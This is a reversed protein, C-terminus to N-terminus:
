LEKKNEWYFSEYEYQKADNIVQKVPLDNMGLKFGDIQDLVYKKNIFERNFSAYKTQSHKRFNKDVVESIHNVAGEINYNPFVHNYKKEYRFQMDGDEEGIALLREDFWGIDAIQKRNLMVHSWTKNITFSKYGNVKNIYSLNEFFLKTLSVDDNLILCQDNSSFILINNWLKSLSRFETCIHPYVNNFKACYNLIERRYVNNFSNNLNGNVFVIIEINPFISKISKLLPKFFSNYRKEFTVIGISYNPESSFKEPKHFTYIEDRKQNLLKKFLNM